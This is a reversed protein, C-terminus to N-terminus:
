IMYPNSIIFYPIHASLVGATPMKTRLRLAGLLCREHHEYIATWLKPDEYSPIRM